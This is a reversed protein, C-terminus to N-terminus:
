FRVRSVLARVYNRGQAAASQYKATMAEMFAEQGDKAIRTAVGAGLLVVVALVAAAAHRQARRRAARPDSSFLEHIRLGRDAITGAKVLSAERGPASETLADRFARSALLRTPSPSAFEAVSAAVAIGDGAVGKAGKEGALQVVGHNIGACLPLGAAEATMAREALRLAGPPDRLVVIAVGDAADLIIRGSLEIEATTVAVVAELQARLRAQESASRRAFEQVKLFVVSAFVSEPM